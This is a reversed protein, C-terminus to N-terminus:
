KGGHNKKFYRAAAAATDIGYHCDFDVEGIYQPEIKREVCLKVYHDYSKEWNYNLIEEEHLRLMESEVIDEVYEYQHDVDDYYLDMKILRPNPEINYISCTAEYIEVVEEFFPDFDDKPEMDEYRQQALQFNNM